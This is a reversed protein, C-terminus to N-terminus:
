AEPESTEVSSSSSEGGGAGEPAGGQLLGATSAKSRCRRCPSCDRGRWARGQLVPDPLASAKALTFYNCLSSSAGQAFIHMRRTETNLVFTKREVKVPRKQAPAAEREVELRRQLAVVPRDSGPADRVLGDAALADRWLRKGAKSRSRADELYARVATSGWRGFWMITADPIGLMALLQAGMRRPSHGSIVGELAVWLLRLTAVAGEKSPFGGSADPFLPAEADAGQMRRVAVQEWLGCVVCPLLVRSAAACTCSLSRAVGSGWYDVKSSPLFLRIGRGDEDEFTSVQRMAVLSGEIERLLFAVCM